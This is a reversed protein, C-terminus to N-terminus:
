GRVPLAPPIVPFGRRLRRRDRAGLLEQLALWGAALLPGWRILFQLVIGETGPDRTRRTTPILILWCALALAVLIAWWTLRWGMLHSRRVAFGLLGTVAAPPGVFAIFLVALEHWRM